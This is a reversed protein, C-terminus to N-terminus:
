ADPAHRMAEEMVTRDIGRREAEALLRDIRELACYAWDSAVMYTDLGVVERGDSDKWSTFGGPGVYFDDGYLDCVSDAM